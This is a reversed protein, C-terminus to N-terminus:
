SGAADAGGRRREVPASIMRRFRRQIRPPLDLMAQVQGSRRVEASARRIFARAEVEGDFLGRQTWFDALLTTGAADLGSLARRHISFWPSEAADASALLDALAGGQVGRPWITTAPPLDFSYWRELPGDHSALYASYAFFELLDARMFEDPFSRRGSSAMDSMMALVRDTRMAFPTVTPPFRAVLAPDSLDFYALTRLLGQRLPHSEYSQLYSRLRGDPTQFFGPRMPRVLHNKADLVVYDDSQVVAAVALKLVQQGYWGTAM